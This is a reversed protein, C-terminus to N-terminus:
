SGSPGNGSISGNTPSCVMARPRALTRMYRSGKAVALSHRLRAEASFSEMRSSIMSTVAPLREHPSRGRHGLRDVREDLGIGAVPENEDRVDGRASQVLEGVRHHGQQLLPAHETAFVLTDGQAVMEPKGPLGTVSTPPYAAAM